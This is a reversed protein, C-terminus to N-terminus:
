YHPRHRRPSPPFWSEYLAQRRGGVHKPSPSEEQPPPPKERAVKRPAELTSETVVAPKRVRTKKSALKREGSEHLADLKMQAIRLKDQSTHEATRRYRPKQDPTGVPRGRKKADETPLVDGESSDM